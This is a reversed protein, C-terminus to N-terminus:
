RLAFPAGEIASPRPYGLAVSLSELLGVTVDVDESASDDLNTCWDAFADTAIVEVM